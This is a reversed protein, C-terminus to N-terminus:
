ARRASPGVAFGVYAAVYVVAGAIFVARGEWRDVLIGGGLAAVSAVANHAAYILITVTVAATATMGSAELIQNSRLILLTTAVNGAEFAGIPILARM